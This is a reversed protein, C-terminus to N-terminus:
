RQPFSFLCKTKAPSSSFPPPLPLLLLFLRLRLPFFTYPTMKRREMERELVAKKKSSLPLPRLISELRPSLFFKKRKKRKQSFFISRCVTTYVLTPPIGSLSACKSIEGRFLLLLPSRPLLELKFFTGKYFQIAGAVASSPSEPSEMNGTFFFLRAYMFSHSSTDEHSRERPEVRKEVRESVM